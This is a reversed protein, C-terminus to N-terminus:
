AANRSRYANRAARQQGLSGDLAMLRSVTPFGLDHHWEGVLDGVAAPSLTLLFAIVCEDVGEIHVHCGKMRALAEEAYAQSCTQSRTASALALMHKM